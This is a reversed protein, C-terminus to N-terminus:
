AHSPWDEWSDEDLKPAWYAYVDNLARKWVQLESEGPLLYGIERMTDLFGPGPRRSQATVVVATIPPRNALKEEHSIRSLYKGVMARSTQLDGYTILKRTMAAEVIKAFLDARYPRRREQAM